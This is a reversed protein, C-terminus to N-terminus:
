YLQVKLNIGGNTMEFRAENFDPPGFKSRPNNSFGYREKPISLWNTDLRGNSNDDQFVSLAYQGKPLDPILIEIETAASVPVSKVILAGSGLFQDPRDYLALRLFGKGPDIGIVHITLPGAQANIHWGSLVMLGTVFVKKMTQLYVHIFSYYVNAIRYESM